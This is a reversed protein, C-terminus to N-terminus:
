AKRLHRKMKLSSPSWVASCMIQLADSAHSAEDKRAGAQKGDTDRRLDLAYSEFAELPCPEKPTEPRRRCVEPALLIRDTRFSRRVLEISADPDLGVGSVHIGRAALNEFWSPAAPIKKGGVYAAGHKSGTSVDGVRWKPAIGHPNDATSYGDASVERAIVDLDVRRWARYSTIVLRSSRITMDARYRAPLLIARLCVTLANGEGYDWAEVHEADPSALEEALEQMDDADLVHRDRELYGAFIRGPTSQEYCVEWETGWNEASTDAKRGEVRAKGQETTTDFDPNQEYHVRMKVLGGIAGPEVLPVVEGHMYRAFTTFRGRVSSAMAVPGISQYVALVDELERMKNAEDIAVREAREGRNSDVTQLSANAGAGALLSGTEPHELACQKDVFRLRSLDRWSEPRQWVPLRAIINRAKSFASKGWNWSRNDVAARKLGVWLLLSPTTSFRWRWLMPVLMSLTKGAFRSAEVGVFHLEGSPKAQGDLGLFLAHFHDQYDYAVFPVWAKRLESYVVVWNDRWVRFDAACAAMIRARESPEEACLDAILLRRVLELRLAEDQDNGTESRRIPAYPGRERIHARVDNVTRIPV